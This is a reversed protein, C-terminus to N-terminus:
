MTQAELVSLQHSHQMRVSKVEAGSCRDAMEVHIKVSTQYLRMTQRMRASQEVRFTLDDTHLAFNLCVILRSRQEVRFGRDRCQRATVKSDNAQQLRQEVRVRVTLRDSVLARRVVSEKATSTRGTLILTASEDAVFFLDAPGSHIADCRDCRM